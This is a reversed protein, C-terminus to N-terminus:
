VLYPVVIEEPSGTFIYHLTYEMIRSSVYSINRNFICKKGIFMRNDIDTSELWYLIREYFSKSHRLICNKSVMCQGYGLFTITDPLILQNGFIDNWNKSM